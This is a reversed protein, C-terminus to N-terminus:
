FFDVFPKAVGALSVSKILCRSECATLSWLSLAFCSHFDFRSFSATANGTHSFAASVYKRVKAKGIRFLFQELGLERQLDIREELVAAHRLRLDGFDEAHLLRLNGQQHPVTRAIKRNSAEHFEEGSQTLVNFDGDPGGAFFVACERDDGGSCSQAAVVCLIM